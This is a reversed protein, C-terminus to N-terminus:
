HLVAFSQAFLDLDLENVNNDGNLDQSCGDCGYTGFSSMINFLDEGDVDGDGNFDSDPGAIAQWTYYYVADIDGDGDVDFRETQTASASDFTRTIVYHPLPDGVTYYEDSERNGNSDYSYVRIEDITGDGDFDVDDQILSGESDYTYYYFSSSEYIIGGWSFSSTVVMETRIGENDFIETMTSTSGPMTSSEITGAIRISDTDYTFTELTTYTDYVTEWRTLYGNEDCTFTDVYNDAGSSVSEALRGDDDYVYDVVSDITGDGSEDKDIRILVLNGDKWMQEFYSRYVDDRLADFIEDAHALGSLMTITLFTMLVAIANTKM